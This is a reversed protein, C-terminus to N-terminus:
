ASQEEQAWSKFFAILEKDKCVERIQFLTFMLNQKGIEEASKRNLAALINFIDSRHTKLLIPVIKNLREAGALFVGIATLGDKEVAKGITEMVEKDSIINSIYPTIECLVDCCEDMTLESLKM